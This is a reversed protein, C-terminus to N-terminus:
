IFEKPYIELFETPDQPIKLRERLVEMNTEMTVPGSTCLSKTIDKDVVFLTKIIGKESQLSISDEHLKKNLYYKQVSRSLIDRDKRVPKLCRRIPKTFFQIAM